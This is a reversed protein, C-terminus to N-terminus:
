KLFLRFKIVLGAGGRAGFNSYAIIRERLDISSRVLLASLSLLRSDFIRPKFELEM